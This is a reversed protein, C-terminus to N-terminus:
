ISKLYAILNDLDDGKLDEFPPMGNGGDHIRARVNAENVAKGDAMKAKKFLGKLAPGTKKETGTADHCVSCQEDFVDKGKAADGAKKDAAAAGTAMAAALALVVFSGRM